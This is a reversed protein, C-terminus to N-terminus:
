RQATFEMPHGRADHVLGGDKLKHEGRLKEDEHNLSLFVRRREDGFM